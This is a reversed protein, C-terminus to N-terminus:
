IQTEARWGREPLDQSDTCPVGGILVGHGKRVPQGEVSRLHVVSAEAWEGIQHESKGVLQQGNLHVVCLCSEEAGDTKDGSTFACPM